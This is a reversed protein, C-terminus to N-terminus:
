PHPPHERLRLGKVWRVFRPWDIAAALLEARRAPAARVARYYGPLQGTRHLYLVVHQAVAYYRTGDPGYLEARDALALRSRGPLRRHVIAALIDFLREDTVFRLTGAHVRAAGYMSAIGENLWPPIGPFDDGILPHVLEHNLNGLGRALNVAVVRADPRYFGLAAPVRAYGLALAQYEIEDEYVVLEVPAHRERRPALLRRSVDDYVLRARAMVAYARAPRVRGRVVIPTPGHDIRGIVPHAEILTRLRAVQGLEPPLVLGGQGRSAASGDVPPAARWCGSVMTLVLILARM